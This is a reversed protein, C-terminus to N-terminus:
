KRREHAWGKTRFGRNLTGKTTKDITKTWPVPSPSISIINSFILRRVFINKKTEITTM